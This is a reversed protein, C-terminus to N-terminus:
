HFLNQVPELDGSSALGSGYSGIVTALGTQPDIRIFSGSATAGYLAGNTDSVLANADSVGLGTGVPLGQSGDFSSGAVTGTGSGTM